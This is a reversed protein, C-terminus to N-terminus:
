GFKLNFQGEKWFFLLDRRFFPSLKEATEKGLYDPSTFTFLLDNNNASFDAKLFCIDLQEHQQVGSISLSDAKKIVFDNIVPFNLYDRTLLPKWSTTYFHIQSDCVPACATTIVGILKTSDNVSLLKMQWINEDTLQVRIYDNSLEKMESNGELRNVVQAKMKSEMFDICDARNVATLLPCISDPLALFLSKATQAKVTSSNLVTIILIVFVFSVSKVKLVMNKM